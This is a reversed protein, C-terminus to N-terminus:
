AYEVTRARSVHRLTAGPHGRESDHVAGSDGTRAGGAVTVQPACLWFCGTGRLAIHSQSLCGDCVGFELIGTRTTGAGLCACHERLTSPEASELAGFYLDGSAKLSSTLTWVVPYAWILFLCVLLGHLLIQGRTDHRMLRSM